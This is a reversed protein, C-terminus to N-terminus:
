RTAGRPTATACRAWFRYGGLVLTALAIGTPPWIATVSHSAFALDLGLKGSAAYAAAVAVVQLAYRARDDHGRAWLGPTKM